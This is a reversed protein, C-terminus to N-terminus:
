NLPEVLKAAPETERWADLIERPTKIFRYKSKSGRRYEAIGFQSNLERFRVKKTEAMMMSNEPVRLREIVSGCFEDSKQALRFLRYLMRYKVPSLKTKM